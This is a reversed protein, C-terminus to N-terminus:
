NGPELTGYTDAIYETTADAKLVNRNLTSDTLLGTSLDDSSWCLIGSRGDSGNEKINFIVRFTTLKVDAQSIAEEAAASGYVVFDSFTEDLMGGSMTLGILVGGDKETVSTTYEYIGDFLGSMSEKIEQLTEEPIVNESAEPSGTGNSQETSGTANGCAVCSLLLAIVVFFLVIRKM